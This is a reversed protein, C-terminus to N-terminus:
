MKLGLIKWFEAPLAVNELRVCNKFLQAVDSINHGAIGCGVRTVLFRLEPHQEAFAAFRQVAETM